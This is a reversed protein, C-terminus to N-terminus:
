VQVHREADRFAADEVPPSERWVASKLARNRIRKLPRRCLRELKVLSPFRNVGRRLAGPMLMQVACLSDSRVDSVARTVQTGMDKLQEAAHRFSALWLWTYYQNHGVYGQGSRNARVNKTLWRIRDADFIGTEAFWRPDVYERLGDFLRGGIWAECTDSNSRLGREAGITRGRLARNTRTWPLRALRDDLQELLCAYVSDDRLSPHISWMYSYVEPHTFMQYVSCSSAITSMSHGIMNRMYQGLLEHELRVYERVGQSRSNSVKLDSCLGECASGLVDKRLLGFMNGPESRRCALLHKGAFEARGISDGYSAALVLADGSVHKFWHMAHQHVPSVLCGTVSMASKLNHLVDEPSLAVHQWDFEVIEATKGAYRVDRSDEIGWTVAVPKVPLRGDRYLEALVGAVVRSDLGGSLLLYIERRDRCVESAEDRLLRRLNGAISPVSPSLTGHPPIREVCVAGGPEIRSMWPRRSVEKVLTRDGYTHNHFLISFVASLDWTLTGDGDAVAEAFSSRWDGKHHRYLPRQFLHLSSELETFRM